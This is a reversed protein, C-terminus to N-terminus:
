HASYFVNAQIMALVIQKRGDVMQRDAKGM